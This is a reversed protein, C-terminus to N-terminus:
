EKKVNEVSTCKDQGIGIFALNFFGSFGFAKM